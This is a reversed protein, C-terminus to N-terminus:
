GLNVLEQTWLGQHLRIKLLPELVNKTLEAVTLLRHGEQEM